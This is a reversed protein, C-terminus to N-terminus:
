CINISRKRTPKLIWGYAARHSKLIEARCGSLICYSQCILIQKRLNHAKETKGRLGHTHGTSAPARDPQLTTTTYRTQKTLHLSPPAATELKHKARKIPEKREATQKECGTTISCKFGTKPDCGLKRKESIALLPAWQSGACTQTKKTPCPKKGVTELQYILRPKLFNDSAKWRKFTPWTALITSSFTFFSKLFHGNFISTPQDDQM